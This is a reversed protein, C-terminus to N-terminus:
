EEVSNVTPEYTTIIDMIADATILCFHIFNHTDSWQYSQDSLWKIYESHHVKFFTWDGYFEAGYKKGLEHIIKVRFSEEVRTYAEVGESFLIEIKEKESKADILNIKFSDVKDIVSDIYYKTSLQELPKWQIWQEEM